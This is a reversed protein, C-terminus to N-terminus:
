AVARFVQPRSPLVAPSAAAQSALMAPGPPQSLPRWSPASVLALQGMEESAETWLPLLPWSCPGWWKGGAHCQAETEGRYREPLNSAQPLCTPPAPGPGTSMLTGERRTTRWVLTGDSALAGLSRAAAPPGWLGLSAGGPVRLPVEM